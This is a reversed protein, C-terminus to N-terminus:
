KAEDVMGYIMSQWWKLLNEVTESVSVTVKKLRKLRETKGRM